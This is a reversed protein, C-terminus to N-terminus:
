QVGFEFHGDHCSGDPWCANYNVKYQGSGADAAVARRMSLKDAAFSVAGVGYEKGDKTVSMTSINSLDFNFNIVVEGPVAALISGHEPTNSVYHASKKPVSFTFTPQVPKEPESVPKSVEEPKATNSSQAPKPKDDSMMKYALFGGGGFIALALIILVARKM